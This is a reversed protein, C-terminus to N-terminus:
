CEWSQMYLKNDIRRLTERPYIIEIKHECENCKYYIKAFTLYPFRNISKMKGDKCRTCTLKNKKLLETKNDLYINKNM